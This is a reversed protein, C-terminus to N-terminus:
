GKERIEFTHVGNAWDNTEVFEYDAIIKDSNQLIWQAAFCEKNQELSRMAKFVLDEITM